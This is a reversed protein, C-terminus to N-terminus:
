FGIGVFVSIVGNKNNNFAEGVLSGSKGIEALGLTYRAGITARDIDIGLGAAVGYDFRNLNEANLDALEESSLDSKLDTLNASVLYSVYPGAHINFNPGLNIVGMVPLEVYHLNARYEGEGFLANDYTRKTGKNSYLLEPQISFGRFVPLKAYVGANLGAKMNNDNVEDKYLNSLNLGAKIGFKPSIGAEGAAEQQQARVQSASFIAGATLLLVTLKKWQTRM